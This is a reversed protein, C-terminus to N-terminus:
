DNNIIWNLAEYVANEIFDDTFGEKSMYCTNGNPVFKNYGTEYHAPNLAKWMPSEGHYLDKNPTGDENTYLSAGPGACFTMYCANPNILKAIFHNKYWREVANGKTNQKKGEVYLVPKENYFWVGGDPECAGIGGPIQHQYLKKQMKLGPENLYFAAAKDRLARCQKDLKKAAADAAVTGPQIGGQKKKPTYETNNADFLKNVGEELKQKM